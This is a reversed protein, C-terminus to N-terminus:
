ENREKRLRALEEKMRATEEAAQRERDLLKELLDSDIGSINTQSEIKHGGSTIADGTFASDQIGVTSHSENTQRDIKTAGSAVMDGGVVSDQMKISEDKQIKVQEIENQLQLKAQESDAVRQQLAQMERQMAAIESASSQQSQQQRLQNMERESQQRQRELQAVINQLELNPEPQSTPINRNSVPSYSDYDRNSGGGNSSTLSKIGAIAAAIIGVIVILGIFGYFAESLDETSVDDEVGQVDGSTECGTSDVIIGAASNPCADISDRVGDGDSDLDVVDDPACGNADVTTGSQTNPCNDQADYVGDNDSDVQSSSCGTLGVSEGNPTNPCQDTADSIGDADSDLQNSACGSSDVATGVTGDCMDQSDYVGDGDSDVQDPTCGESNASSGIPTNPCTDLTNPIEDLDSDLYAYWYTGGGETIIMEEGNPSVHLSSVSGLKCDADQCGIITVDLSENAPNIIKQVSHDNKDEQYRIGWPLASLLNNESHSKGIELRTGTDLEFMQDCDFFYSESLFGSKIGPCNINFSATTLSNSIADLMWTNTGSEQIILTRGEPSMFIQDTDDSDVTIGSHLVTGAGGGFNTWQESIALDIEDSTYEIIEGDTDVVYLSQKLHSMGIWVCTGTNIDLTVPQSFDDGVIEFLRIACKNGNGSDSTSYVYQSNSSYGFHQFNGVASPDGTLNKVEGDSDVVQYNTTQSEDTDKLSMISGDSHYWSIAGGEFSSDLIVYQPGISCAGILGHCNDDPNLVGDADVDSQQWSCGVEDVEISSGTEPCEDVGDYVGDEDADGYEGISLMWSSAANKWNSDDDLSGNGSFETTTISPWNGEFYLKWEDVESNMDCEDDNLVDNDECEISINLMQTGDPIDETITWANTLNLTNDWTPSNTCGLEIDDANICVRFQPDPLGDDDDWTESSNATWSLLDLKLWADGDPYNDGISFSLIGHSERIVVNMSEFSIDADLAGNNCEYCYDPWNYQVLPTEFSKDFFLITDYDSVMSAGTNSVEVTSCWCNSETNEFSNIPSIEDTEFLMFTEIQSDMNLHNYWGAILYEGNPSLSISDSLGIDTGNYSWIPMNASTSFICIGSSYCTTAIRSGDSSISLAAGANMYTPGSSNTFWEPENSDRSFLYLSASNSAVIYEGEDSIELGLVYGISYESPNHHWLFENSDKHFLYLGRTPSDTYLGVAVYEGSSSMAVLHNPHVRDVADTGSSFNWLPTSSEKSFFFIGYNQTGAVLYDGNASIDVSSIAVDLGVENSLNYTWLPINSDTEFLYVIGLTYSGAVFYQGDDSMAVSSLEEISYNWNPASISEAPSVEDAFPPNETSLILSFSVIFLMFVILFVKM